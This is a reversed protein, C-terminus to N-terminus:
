LAALEADGEYSDSDPNDPCDIEHSNICHETRETGDPHCPAGCYGCCDDTTVPLGCYICPEAAKKPATARDVIRDYDSMRIGSRRNRPAPSVTKRRQRPGTSAKTRKDKM